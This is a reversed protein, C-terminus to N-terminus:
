LSHVDFGRVHPRAPPIQGKASMVVSTVAEGTDNYARITFSCNAVPFVLKSVLQGTSQDLTVGQPLVPAKKLLDVVPSVLASFSGLFIKAKEELEAMKAKPVSDLIGQLQETHDRPALKNVNQQMLLPTSSTDRLCQDMAQAQEM